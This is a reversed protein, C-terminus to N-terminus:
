NEGLHHWESEPLAALFSHVDDLCDHSEAWELHERLRLAKSMAPTHWWAALILPLAPEWGAGKRKKGPLMQYLENWRQPQPCVRRNQQVLALVNELTAVVGEFAYRTHEDQKDVMCYQAVRRLAITM